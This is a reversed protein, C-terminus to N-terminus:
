VLAVTFGTWYSRMAEGLALDVADFSDAPSATGHM